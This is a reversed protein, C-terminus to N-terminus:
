SGQTYRYSVKVTSGETFSMTTNEIATIKGSAYNVTYDTNFAYTASGDASKVVVSGAVVPTHALVYASESVNYTVTEDNVPTGEPEGASQNNQGGQNNQQGGNQGGSQEYVRIYGLPDDQRSEDRIATITVGQGIWDSSSFTLEVNEPTVQAKPFFVEVIQGDSRTHEFKVNTLVDITNKAGFNIKDGQMAGVPNALALTALDIQALTAKITRSLRTLAQKVTTKPIGSEFSLSEMETTVVVDGSLYGVSEGNVYLEGTGLTISEANKSM